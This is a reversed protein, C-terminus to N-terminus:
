GMKRQQVDNLFINKFLKVLLGRSKKEWPKMLNSDRKSSRPSGWRFHSMRYTGDKREQPSLLAQAKPKALVTPLGQDEKAQDEISSLQRRMQPPFGSELSDGGELSSTFVKVPRRKRGAPKGWRFHEMSYSRREDNHARLNAQEESPMASHLMSLLLDQDSGELDLSSLEALLREKKSLDNCITGKWCVTGSEPIYVYAMVAVLLWSVCVM